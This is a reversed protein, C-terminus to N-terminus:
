RARKREKGKREKQKQKLERERAKGTRAKSEGERGTASCKACRIESNSGSVRAVTYFGMGATNVFFGIGQDATQRSVPVAVDGVLM